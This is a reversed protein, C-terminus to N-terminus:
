RHRCGAKRRPRSGRYGSRKFSYNGHGSRVFSKFVVDEDDARATGSEARGDFGGGGADGDAEDAFREEALRVGDHGLAAHRRRHAVNIVAVVPFDVEGIGHAAALVDVVPAHGLEVGLFSGRAHPFELGPAGHEIAGLLALNRLAIEAAVTERAEGVDAVAGAELHNAGQLVVADVLADGDVHFPGDDAQELVAVADDAGEAVIALAAAELDELGLGDDDGRASKAARELNGAVRPFAGAVTVREGIMGAGLQEVHFEDLKM